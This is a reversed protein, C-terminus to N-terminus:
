SYNGARFYDAVIDRIRKESDRKIETLVAAYSSKESVYSIVMARYTAGDDILSESMSSFGSLYSDHILNKLKAGKVECLVNDNDFPLAAYVQGYTVEGAPLDHRACGTNVFAAVLSENWDALGGYYFLMAKSAIAALQSESIASPLHGVVENIVPDSAYYYDYLSKAMPEESLSSLANVDAVGFSAFALRGNSEAFHLSRIDSGNAYTQVHPIGYSDVKAYDLHTHGELVADINHCLSTDFSGYHLSLIVLDCAEDNRLRDAEQSVLGTIDTAFHYAGLSSVAISDEVPGIAGIVGIKYKGRRVIKSPQAWAPRQGNGDLINIGLFPFVAKAANAAIVDATWDFEHNGIAMSEFGALNMWEVMLAGRSDNSLASGQWMDGSSLVVANDPNLREKGLLYSSLRTIGAQYQTPLCDVAGHTDNITYIDLFPDQAPVYAAKRPLATVEFSRILFSGVPAYFSFYLSGGAGEDPLTLAQGSTLPYAGNEPSAIAYDSGKATLFGYAATLEYDVTISSWVLNDSAAM